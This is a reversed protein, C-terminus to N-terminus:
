DFTVQAETEATPNFASAFDIDPGFTYNMFFTDSIDDVMTNWNAGYLTKAIDETKVWRLSGDRGVSYVKNITSFKVMRVGPRYTVNKGLPFAGMVDSTVTAVNNFDQYWTFFVRSNPFAHRKGDAGVYYVAKCPHDASAKAPCALKLLQRTYDTPVDSYLTPIPASIPVAVVPPNPTALPAEAQLAGAVWIATNPGAAMSGNADRCFVFAIRSGAYPFVFSTSARGNAVTMDGVDALDVYLRCSSIAANSSVTASLSVPTNVTAQVPSVESIVPAASAAFPLLLAASSALLYKFSNM